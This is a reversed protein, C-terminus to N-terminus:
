RTESRRPLFLILFTLIYTLILIIFFINETFYLLLGFIAGPLVIGFILFLLSVTNM